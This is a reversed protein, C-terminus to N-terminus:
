RAAVAALIPASRLGLSAREGLATVDIEVGKLLGGVIKAREAAVTVQDISNVLDVLPDSRGAPPPRGRSRSKGRGHRGNSSPM